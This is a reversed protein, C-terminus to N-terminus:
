RQMRGVDVYFSDLIRDLPLPDVLDLSRRKKKSRGDSLNENGLTTEIRDESADGALVDILARIPPISDEIASDYLDYFSERHVETEDGPHNWENRQLNLYDMDPLSPPHFLALLRNLPDSGGDDHEYAAHLNRRETPNTFIYFRRTDHYANEVRAINHDEGRYEPFTREISAATIDRISEPISEGCDFCSFFDYNEIRQSTREELVLKDIIREFFPHCRHYRFSERNEQEFWGSFYNIFPHAKRDLPAHTVFGLLYAGPPSEVSYGREKAEAAAHALFAGYGENHLLRGFILGSPKTRHNHLYFDPGQAGFVFYRAYPEIREVLGTGGARKLAERAFVQHTVHSPM